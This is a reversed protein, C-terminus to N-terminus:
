HRGLAADVSMVEVPALNLARLKSEVVKRDGVVLILSKAPIMHKAAARQVDAVTVSQIHATYGNFYDAPLGYSVLEELKRSLEGTTEFQGPFSLALYNKARGLEVSPIPKRIGNLEKLFEAVSEATKDTQVAAEAVFPGASRRLDFRSSAGYTYGHQERLNQNLRSTFAGGLVANMVELPFYEPTSRAAGVWGIRVQSQPAGPKDVLVLRRKQVQPAPSIAVSKVEPGRWKGFETELMAVADNARLDGAVVFAANAPVYHARHFAKLDDAKLARVTAETGIGLTGYRYSPGYLLRAYAATAISAPDDRAQLLSTLRQQRVRELDSTPFTPRLAIDAMVSLASVLRAVPVNLRVASADFSSSTTLNAGLAELSDAIELASRTGAGETLMAATLSAVGFQGQPDDASGSLTVLDVQVLPVEDSEILWVAVGNSLM